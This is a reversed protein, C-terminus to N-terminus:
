VILGKQKLAMARWEARAERSIDDAVQPFAPRDPYGVANFLEAALYQVRDNGCGAGSAAKCVDLFNDLSICVVTDPGIICVSKDM